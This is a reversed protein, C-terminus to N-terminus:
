KEVHNRNKLINRIFDLEAEMAALTHKENSSMNHFEYCVDCIFNNKFIIASKRRSKYYRLLRPTSWDFLQHREAGQPPTIM